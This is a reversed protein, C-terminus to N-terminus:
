GLLMHFYQLIKMWPCPKTQRKCLNGKREYASLISPFLTPPLSVLTFAAAKMWIFPPHPRYCFHLSPNFPSRFATLSQSLSTLFPWSPLLSLLMSLELHKAQSSHLPTHIVTISVCPWPCTHCPSSNLSSLKLRLHM